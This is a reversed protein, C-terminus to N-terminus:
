ANFYGSEILKSVLSIRAYVRALEEEDKEKGARARLAEVEKEAEELTWDNEM